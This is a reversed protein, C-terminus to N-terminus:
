LSSNIEYLFSSPVCWDFEELYCHIKSRTPDASGFDDEFFGSITVQKGQLPLCEALTAKEDMGEGYMYKIFEEELFTIIYKKGVEISSPLVPPLDRKM